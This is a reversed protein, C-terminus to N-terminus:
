HGSEMTAGFSATRSKSSSLADLVSARGREVWCGWGVCGESRRCGVGVGVTPVSSEVRNDSCGSRERACLGASYTVESGDDRTRRRRQEGEMPLVAGECCWVKAAKQLTAAM